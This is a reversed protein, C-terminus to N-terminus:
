KVLRFTGNPCNKLEIDKLRRKRTSKSVVEKSQEKTKYMNKNEQTSNRCMPKYADKKRSIAEKVEVNRLWTDEKSRKGIKKGCM